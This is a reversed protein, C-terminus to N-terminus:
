ANTRNPLVGEGGCQSCEVEINTHENSDHGYFERSSIFGEGHCKKCFRSKSPLDERIARITALLKKAREIEAEAKQITTWADNEMDTLLIYKDRLIVRPKPPEPNSM